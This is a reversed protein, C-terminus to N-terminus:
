EVMGNLHVRLAEENQQHETGMAVKAAQTLRQVVRLYNACPKSTRDSNVQHVFGVLSETTTSWQEFAHNIFAAWGVGGLSDDLAPFTNECIRYEYTSTPLYPLHNTNYLPYNLPYSAVRGGARPARDSPWVYVDRAAVVRIGDKYYRFQIAYIDYLSLGTITDGNDLQSGDIIKSPHYGGPMWDLSNHM